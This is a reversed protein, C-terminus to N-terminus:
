GDTSEQLAARAARYEKILPRDALGEQDGDGEDPDYAEARGAFPELAARLRKVTAEAAEARAKWEGDVVNIATLATELYAPSTARALEATLAEVKACSFHGHEDGIMPGECQNAALVFNEAEAADARKREKSLATRLAVIEDALKAAENGERRLFNALASDTSPGIYGELQNAVEFIDREDMTKQAPAPSPYLKRLLKAAEKITLAAELEDFADSDIIIHAEHAPAPSPPPPMGEILEIGALTGDDAVDIIAAVHRQKLFPPKARDLPAFYYLNGHETQECTWYADRREM